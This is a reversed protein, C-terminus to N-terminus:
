SISLYRIPLDSCPLVVVKVVVDSACGLEKGARENSELM